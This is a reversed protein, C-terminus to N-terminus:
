RETESKGSATITPGKKDVVWTPSNYLSRSPMIIGNNMLDKIQYGMPYPYLKSYVPEDSV